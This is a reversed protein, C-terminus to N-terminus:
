KNPILIARVPSADSNELPLPLAILNYVEESVHNLVLGELIAMDFQAVKKHSELEKDQELDISPTDIGVTIVKQTHLHDLLEASLAAFDSNWQDPNPFSQTKFLVRPCRIEQHNIHHPRIREGRSVKAEIVQCPGLYYHLPQKDMARGEPHYHIPADAHAGLHVTSKISGLELHHGKAFSMSKTLEFQQDGPFVGLQHSIRPTIDIYNIPETLDM